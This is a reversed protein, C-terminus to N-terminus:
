AAAMGHRAQATRAQSTPQSEMSARAQGGSSWPTAPGQQWGGGLGAPGHGHALASSADGMVPVKEPVLGSGAAEQCGCESETKGCHIWLQKM